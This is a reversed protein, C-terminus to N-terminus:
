ELSTLGQKKSKNFMLVFFSIGIVLYIGTLGASKILNGQDMTGTALVSRMGEFVYSAPVWASIKQAWLPLTKVPYYIASFPALMYVGSWALTQIKTGFRVIFSSVLFGIYWGSILLLVVFPLLLWGMQLVEVGYMFFVLSFVFIITFIMKTLGLMIVGAMWEFVTLPTAFLNVMNHAWMEELLSTTIEYQSRWIVQWFILATLLIKILDPFSATQRIYVSTLGWLLIDMAPWYFMDFVRDWSHKFNYIHRWVIARARAWNM